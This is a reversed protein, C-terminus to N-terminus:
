ICGFCGQVLRLDVRSLGCHISSAVGFGQVGVLSWGLEGWVGGACGWILVFCCTRFEGWVCRLGPNMMDMFIAFWEICSANAFLSGGEGGEGGEGGRGHRMQALPLAAPSGTPPLSPEARRLTTTPQSAIDPQYRAGECKSESGIKKRSM